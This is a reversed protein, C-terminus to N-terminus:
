TLTIQGDAKYHAEHGAIDETLAAAIAGADTTSAWVRDGSPTLCSGLYTEPNNERDHMVTWTEIAIDGEYETLVARGGTADVAEQPRDYQFSPDPPTTSFLGFSHKDVHGGNATVLGYSGADARLTSVMSALAHGVPNNWPGGAFCLGGYVTLPRSTPAIGMEACFLGVASPFCSYIDLHAVDEIGIGAAALCSETGIRISPSSDFDLRESMIRDKCDTGSHVFVWRDKPVGADVATQASCVIVASAMEVQPNSVMHKTYPWGIYRNSDTATGIESATFSERNWAYENGAAVDSFGAWMEAVNQLYETPALGSSHMLATEFMPYAQTPQVIARAHEAPHGMVFKEDGDWTPKVSLDQVTWDPRDGSRKLSSRTYWTEGGCLIGVDLEGQSIETALRNLLMQPTNGGIDPYWTQAGEIGVKEAILAAPDQYNWSLMRVCAVVKAKSALSAGTDRDALAVAEAILDTPELVDAGQDVRNLFQGVGVIVPTRPDFSSESNSTATSM